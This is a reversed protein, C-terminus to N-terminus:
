NSENFLTKITFYKLIDAFLFLSTSKGVTESNKTLSEGDVISSPNEVQRSRSAGQPM